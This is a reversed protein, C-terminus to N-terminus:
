VGHRAHRIFTQQVLGGMLTARHKIFPITNPLHSHRAGHCRVTATPLPMKLTTSEAGASRLSTTAQSACRRPHGAGPKSPEVVVRRPPAGIGSRIMLLARM